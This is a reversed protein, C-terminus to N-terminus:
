KIEGSEKSTRKKYLINKGKIKILAVTKIIIDFLKLLM